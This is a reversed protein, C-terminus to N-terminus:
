SPKQAWAERDMGDHSSQEMEEQTQVLSALSLPHSAKVLQSM